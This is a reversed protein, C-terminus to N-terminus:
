ESKIKVRTGIPEINNKNDLVCIQYLRLFHFHRDFSVFNSHISKNVKWM